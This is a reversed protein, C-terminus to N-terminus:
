GKAECECNYHEHRQQIQHIIERGIYETYDPPIANALEKGTMPWDIGMAHQWTKVISGRWFSIDAEYVMKDGKRRRTKRSGSGAVTVLEGRSVQLRTKPIEPQLMWIGGGFEFWRERIIPLGFAYGVLKLDPRLGSFPVNEIVYPRGIDELAERTAPILDAYEAGLTVVCGKGAKSHAQCPPSAHIASFERGHQRIFEVADGQHFEFPYNPQPDIDVGVVEWGARAYGMAAGGAKCYTDLLLPKM